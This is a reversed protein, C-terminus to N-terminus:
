LKLTRKLLLFLDSHVKFSGFSLQLTVQLQGLLTHHVQLIVLLLQLLTEFLLIPCFCRM